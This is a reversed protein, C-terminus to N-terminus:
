IKKRGWYCLLLIVTEFSSCVLIAIASMNVKTIDELFGHEIFLIFVCIIYSVLRHKFFEGIYKNKEDFDCLAKWLCKKIVEPIVGLAFGAFIFNDKPLWLPTELVLYKDLMLFALTLIGLIARWIATIKKKEEYDKDEETLNRAPYVYFLWIFQAVITGGLSTILYVFNFKQIPYLICIIAPFSIILYTIIAILKKKNKGNLQRFMVYWGEFISLFASSMIALFINRMPLVIDKAEEFLTMVGFVIVLLVFLINVLFTKNNCVYLFLYYMCFALLPIYFWWEKNLLSVISSGLYINVGVMLIAPIFLVYFSNNDDLEATKVKIRYYICNTSYIAISLGTIIWFGGCFTSPNYLNYMGIFVIVIVFLTELWNGVVDYVRSNPPIDKRTLISVAYSHGFLCILLIQIIIITYVQAAIQNFEILLPFFSGSMNYNQLVLGFVFSLMGVVSYGFIDFLTKIFYNNKEM